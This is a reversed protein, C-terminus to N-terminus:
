GQTKGDPVGGWVQQGHEEATRLMEAARVRCETAGERCDADDCVWAAQILSWTADSYSNTRQDIIANCLFANALDPYRPDELQNQYETEEVVTQAEPPAASVESACYGCEPCRQVSASITSREMEPPRTDLDPSGFANTSGIREYENEAGCVACTAKAHYITTM